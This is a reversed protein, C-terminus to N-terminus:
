LNPTLEWTPCSKQQMVDCIGDKGEIEGRRAFCETERFRSKRMERFSQGNICDNAGCVPFNDKMDGRQEARTRREPAIRGSGDPCHKSLALTIGAM